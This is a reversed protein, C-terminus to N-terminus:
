GHPDPDEWPKLAQNELVQIVQEAKQLQSQCYQILLHGRQYLALAQELPLQVNELQNMCVELEKYASEYNEPPLNAIM